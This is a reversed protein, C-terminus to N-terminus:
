EGALNRSLVLESKLLQSGRSAIKSGSTVPGILEVMENQTIGCTVARPEFMEASTQIFVLTQGNDLHICERNVAVASKARIQIKAVGYMNARLAFMDISTVDGGNLRPNEVEARVNLTRTKENVETSIWSVSGEVTGDFGDPAFFIKQGLRVLGADEKHVHLTVWVRSVDSVQMFPNESNVAEGISADNGTIVGSIPARIPLLNSSRSSKEISELLHGEFGLTRLRRSVDQESLGSFDDHNLQFGLNVLAQEASLLAVTAMQLAGETELVQGQPIVGAASKYRDLTRQKLNRESLSRAFESKLRGADGAEVIALVEGAKVQQGWQCLVQHIVGPVRTSLDITNRQDYHVEASAVVDHSLNHIGVEEVEIGSLAINEANRFVIPQLAEPVENRTNEDIHQAQQSSPAPVAAVPLTQEALSDEKATSRGSPGIDPDGMGPIAWHFSHGLMGVAFLATLTLVYSVQQRLRVKLSVSTLAIPSTTM